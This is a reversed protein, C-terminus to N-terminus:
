PRRGAGARVAQVQPDSLYTETLKRGKPLLARCAHVTTGYAALAAKRLPGLDSLPGKLIGIRQLRLESVACTKELFAPLQRIVPHEMPLVQPLKRAFLRVTALSILSLGLLQSSLAPNEAVARRTWMEGFAVHREEQVVAADLIRRISDDELTDILAYFVMLVFGEGAAMELCTHEAFNAGMFSTSLFKVARHVPSPEVGIRDLLRLFQQIHAMEEVSQQALFQAAELNPAHYLWHGCQIGTVEGYLFQSFIWGLADRDEPLRFRAGGFDFRIEEPTLLM